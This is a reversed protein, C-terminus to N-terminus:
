KAAAPDGTPATFTIETGQGPASTIRLEGGVKGARERMSKLGVGGDRGNGGDDSAERDVAALDFGVGDDRVVCQFQDPGFRLHTRVEGAEAYKEANMLAEQVIRFAALEVGPPLATPTGEVELRASASSREAFRSVHARLGDALGQQELVPSRLRRVLYRLEENAQRVTMREKVAITAAKAADGVMALKALELRNAINVLYHQIGDHMELSLAERYEGLAVKERLRAMEEVVSRESYAYWASLTTAVMMVVIYVALKGAGDGDLGHWTAALALLAASALGTAITRRPRRQIASTAVPWFYMLGAESRIGGTTMVAATVVVLDAAVGVNRWRKSVRLGLVLYARVAVYIFACGLLIHFPRMDGDVREQVYEFQSWVLAFLLVFFYLAFFGISVRRETDV